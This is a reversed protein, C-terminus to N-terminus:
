EDAWGYRQNMMKKIPEPPQGYGNWFPKETLESARDDVVVAWSKDKYEWIEVEIMGDSLVGTEVLNEMDEMRINTARADPDTFNFYHFSKKRVLSDVYMPVKKREVRNLIYRKEHDCIM